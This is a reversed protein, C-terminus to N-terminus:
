FLTLQLGIFSQKIFWWWTRDLGGGVACYAHQASPWNPHECTFCKKFTFSSQNAASSSFFFFIRKPGTYVLLRWSVFWLFFFCFFLKHQQCSPFTPSLVPQPICWSTSNIRTSVACRCSQALLLHSYSLIATLTFSFSPCSFMQFLTILYIKKFKLTLFTIHQM